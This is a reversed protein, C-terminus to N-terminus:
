QCCLCGSILPQDPDSELFTVRVEVGTRLPTLECQWNAAGGLWCSSKDDFRGERDWPFKVKLRACRGDTRPAEDEMAIVLATQSPVQPKEHTLPPRYLVDGPVLMFRNCYGPHRDDDAPDGSAYENLVQPQRGEHIVRTLLWPENREQGPPGPIELVHGSALGTQQGQSELPRYAARRHEGAQPTLQRAPKILRENARRDGEPAVATAQEIRPFVAQHDGFVLVHGQASHQFHFHIGEEECLRQIFHLDTEGFQTCCDREPYTSDLEFRYADGLIGHEELILAVIAPVSFQQYIRQNTRHRLYSLHPVLALNYCQTDACQAIHYIRGHIGNGHGDFALFAERDVLSQLELDPRESVCEVKFFYPKSIAEEGTFALVQVDHAFGDITLCFHTQNAPSFM